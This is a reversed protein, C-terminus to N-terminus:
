PDRKRLMNWPRITQGHLPQKYVKLIILIPVSNYKDFIDSHRYSNFEQHNDLALGDTYFLLTSNVLIQFIKLISCIRVGKYENSTSNAFATM